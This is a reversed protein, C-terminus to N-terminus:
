IRDEMSLNPRLQVHVYKQFCQQEQASISKKRRETRTAALPFTQTHLGTNGLSHGTIFGTKNYNVAIM